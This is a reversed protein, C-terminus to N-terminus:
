LVLRPLDQAVTTLSVMSCPPTSKLRKIVNPTLNLIESTRHVASGHRRLVYKMTM